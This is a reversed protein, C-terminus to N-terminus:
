LLPGVADSCGGLVMTSPQGGLSTLRFLLVPLAADSCDGVAELLNLTSHAGHQYLTGDSTLWEPPM